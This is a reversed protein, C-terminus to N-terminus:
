GHGPRPTAAVRRWPIDVRRERRDHAPKARSAVLRRHAFALASGTDVRDGSTAQTHVPQGRSSAAAPRAAVRRRGRPSAVGRVFFHCRSPAGVKPDGRPSAVELVRPLRQTANPDPRPRLTEGLVPEKSAADLLGWLTREGNARETAERWGRVHAPEAGFLAGVAASRQDPKLLFVQDVDNLACAPRVASAPRRWPAVRPM